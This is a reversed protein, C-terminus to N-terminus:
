RRRSPSCSTRPGRCRRTGRPRSRRRGSAGPGLGPLRRHVPEPLRGPQVQGLPRDGAAVRRGPRLSAVHREVVQLRGRLGDRGARGAFGSSSIWGFRPTEGSPSASRPTRATCRPRGTAPTTSTVSPREFAPSSGSRTASDSARSPMGIKGIADPPSSPGRFTRTTSTTALGTTKALSGIVRATMTSARPSFSASAVEDQFLPDVAAVPLLDGVLPDGEALVADGLPRREPDHGLHHALVLKAGPDLVGPRLQRVVVVGRRGRHPDDALLDADQHDGPRGRRLDLEEAVRELAVLM